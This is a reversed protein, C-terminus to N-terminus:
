LLRARFWDAVLANREVAHNYIAHLGDPWEQWTSDPGGAALFPEQDTRPVLVDAGGHLVLLPRAISLGRGGFTIKDLHAALADPDTTGFFAFMLEQATRFPPLFPVAPAGNIVCAGIRSDNAAALAAFLGGLSNGWVGVRDGVRPEAILWDVCASVAEVVGASAAVGALRTAGQGPLEVLLCAVGSAALQDAISLYASGWGNLGGFIVVTPPSEVGAPTVLLASLEAGAFPVGVVSYRDPAESALAAVQAGIAAYLERKRDTDENFPLQAVVLDAIALKILPLRAAGSLREVSALAAHAEAEAVADLAAGETVAAIVRQASGVDMGCDVMRVLPIAGLLAARAKAADDIAVPPADAM